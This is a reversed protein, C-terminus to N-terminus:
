KVEWRGRPYVVGLQLSSFNRQIASLYVTARRAYKTLGVSASFEGGAGGLWNGYGRGESESDEERREAHVDRSIGPLAKSCEDDWEASGPENVIRVAIRIMKTM